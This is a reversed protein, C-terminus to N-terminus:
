TQANHESRNEGRSPTDTPPTSDQHQPGPHERDGSPPRPGQCLPGAATAARRAYEAEIRALKATADGRAPGQATAAHHKWQARAIALVSETLTTLDGPWPPAEAAKSPRPTARRADTARATRTVLERIQAAVVSGTQQEGQAASPPVGEPDRDRPRQGGSSSPPPNPPTQFLPAAAPTRPHRVRCARMGDTADKPAVPPTPPPALEPMPDPRTRPRVVLAIRRRGDGTPSPECAIYGVEELHRLCRQVARLSKSSARVIEANTMYVCTADKYVEGMIAALIRVDGDALRPDAIAPRPVRGYPVTEARPRQGPDHLRLAASM